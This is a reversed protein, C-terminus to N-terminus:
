LASNLACEILENITGQSVDQVQHKASPDFRVEERHLLKHDVISDIFSFGCDNLLLLDSYLIAISSNDVHKLFADSLSEGNVYLWSLLRSGRQQILVSIIKYFLGSRVSDLPSAEHLFSFVQRLLAPGSGGISLDTFTDLQSPIISGFVEVSVSAYKGAGTILVHISSQSSLYFTLLYM